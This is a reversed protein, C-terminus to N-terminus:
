HGKCRPEPIKGGCITCDASVQSVSAYTDYCDFVVSGPAWFFERQLLKAKVRKNQDNTLMKADDAANLSQADFTNLVFFRNPAWMSLQDPSGEAQAKVLSRNPMLGKCKAVAQTVQRLRKHSNDWSIGTWRIMVNARRMQPLIRRIDKPMASDGSDMIGTIEDLLIDGDRFTHMQEWSEFKEFLPHPDGTDPDLITVTSLVRRGMTLSPLTDRIMALTKGQGNLGVYGMIPVSRRRRVGRGLLKAAELRASVPPLAGASAGPAALAVEQAREARSQEVLADFGVPLLVPEKPPAPLKVHTM